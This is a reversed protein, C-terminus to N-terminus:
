PHVDKVYGLTVIDRQTGPFQVGRLAQLIQERAEM